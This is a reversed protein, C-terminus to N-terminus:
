TTAAGAFFDIGRISIDSDEDNYNGSSSMGNRMFTIGPTLRSLDDVNRVGLQDLKEQSFTTISMPVDQLNETRRQATVVIQELAGSDAAPTEASAPSGGWSGFLATAAFMGFRRSLSKLPRNPWSNSSRM